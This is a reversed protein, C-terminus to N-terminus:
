EYLPETHTLTNIIKKIRSRRENEVYNECYAVAQAYSNQPVRYYYQGPTVVFWDNNNVCYITPITIPEDWGRRMVSDVQDKLDTPIYESHYVTQQRPEELINNYVQDEDHKVIELVIIIGCVIGVFFCVIGAILPKYNPEM